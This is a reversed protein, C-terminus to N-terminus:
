FHSRIKSMRQLDPKKPPNRVETPLSGYNPNRTVCYIPNAPTKKKHKFIFIALVLLDTQSLFHAQNEDLICTNEFVLESECKQCM